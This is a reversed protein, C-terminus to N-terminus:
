ASREEAALVPTLVEVRLTSVVLSGEKKGAKEWSKWTLKGSVALPTGEQLPRPHNGGAGLSRHTDLNQIGARGQCNGRCVAPGHLM